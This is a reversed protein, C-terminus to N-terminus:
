ADIGAAAIFLLDLDNDNLDLLPALALITPSNRKFEQADTWALRALPDVVDSAMFAEVEDLMNSFDDHLSPTSLLAARAQFRTVSPLIVSPKRYELVEVSDECIEEEAYGPQALAYIGKIKGSSDREVYVM